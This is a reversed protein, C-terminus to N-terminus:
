VARTPYSVHSRPGDSLSDHRAARWLAIVLAVTVPVWLMREVFSTSALNMLAGIVMLATAGYLLRRRFTTGAWSTGVAAALLLYIVGQVATSVRLENPLVGPHSGGLAAAGWPAGAALTMQFAAVVLLLVAAIKGATSAPPHNVSTTRTM